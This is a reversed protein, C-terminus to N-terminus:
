ADRRRMMIAAGALAVVAYGCMVAFGTWPSLFGSQHHVNLLADGANSPLYPTIHTKISSPLLGVLVPLLLMLGVVSAIGAATNRLLAGLGVGILGVVLLYLAAGFVAQAVGPASFGVQVHHASLVAMGSFFAILSAITMTVLTVAGFVGAKAWLVPLRLPVAAFTSRIMGSSYESTVVLVGLAGITLQTFVHGQLVTGVSDFSARSAASMTAWQSSNVAAILLGIGAMLLFSVALTINTSRLSRLKIWESRVVRPLTVPQVAVRREARGSTVPTMTQTSM